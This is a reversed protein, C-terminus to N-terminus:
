AFKGGGEQLNRQLLTNHTVAVKLSAFAACDDEVGSVLQLNFSINTIKGPDTNDREEKDLLTMEMWHPSFFFIHQVM